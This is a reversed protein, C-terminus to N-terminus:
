NWSWEQACEYDEAVGDRFMREHVHIQIAHLIHFHSFTEQPETQPANYMKNGHLQMKRQTTQNKM